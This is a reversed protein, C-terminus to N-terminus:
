KIGADKLIRNLTGKKVDETDHRGVQFVRGRSAGVWNEHKSGESIKCCGNKKLLKKLESYKM